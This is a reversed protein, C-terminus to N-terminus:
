RRGEDRYAKWENWDFRGLQRQEARARISQLAERAQDRGRVPRAPVLRAVEKGHGSSESEKDPVWELLCKSLDCRFATMSTMHSQFTKPSLILAPLTPSPGPDIRGRSQDPGVQPGM